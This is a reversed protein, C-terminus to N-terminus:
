VEDERGNYRYVFSPLNNNICFFARMKMRATFM